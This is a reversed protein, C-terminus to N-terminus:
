PHAFLYEVRKRAKPDPPLTLSLLPTVWLHCGGICDPLLIGLVEGGDKVAQSGDTRNRLEHRAAGSTHKFTQTM